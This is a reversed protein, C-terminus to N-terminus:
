LRKILDHVTKLVEEGRKAIAMLEQKSYVDAIHRLKEPDWRWWPIPITRENRLGCFYAIWDAEAQTIIPQKYSDTLTSGDSLVVTVTVVLEQTGTPLVVWFISGGPNVTIPYPGGTATWILKFDTAYCATHIEVGVWFKSGEVNQPHCGDARQKGDPDNYTSEPGGYIKAYPAVPPDPSYCLIVEATQNVEDISVVTISSHPGNGKTFEGGVGLAKQGDTGKMVYSHTGLFQGLPGEFRHVLIASSGIGADWDDPVRFEILYSSDGSEGPMEIALYGSLNRKHLPRLTVQLRSFGTKLAAYPLLSNVRSEDLWGRGRMNWANLGPGRMGYSQDAASLAQQTSMIDWPDRYDIGVGNADLEGDARSHDLGFAHGMEQGWAQIGNNKVYRIDMFVGTGGDYAGGQAGFDPSQFSVAVGGPFDKWDVGYQDKLVQKALAFTNNQYLAGGPNAALAAGEAVTRPLQCPFVKSDGTYIRGHSMEDWYRVSNFTFLGTCGSTIGNCAVHRKSPREPM